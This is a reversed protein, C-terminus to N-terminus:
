SVLPAASMKAENAIVHEQQGSRLSEAIRITTLTTACIEEFTIPAPGGSRISEAFEQWEARHGKDQRLWSRHVQRRGHRVLELHRFDDLVAVAGGGFVEVREKGFARDGSCVYHITGRSGDSFALQIIADQDEAGRPISTADVSVPTAGCLFSLFDVFHCVEGLIRGGGQEPDNIWHDKPLLGANVRYHMVLPGSSGSLFTKMQRAMPAFRRNFGVMLKGGHASHASEIESLEAENLCLPKECFVHKGFELARVV